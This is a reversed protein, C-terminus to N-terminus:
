FWFRTGAVFSAGGAGEGRARALRATRGTKREWSVGVYPAFERAIEYRLRLGLEADILGAGYGDRPVDQAALNLEVRPQAVLRQTLRQDYWGEIRALLDGRTSLFLAAETDLQYPALGEVAITAYARRPKLDYRVGLQLDHYPGIARGYLAQVEAADAGRGFRGEGESKVWLRNRDGGFWGEGDWRWGDRGDRVQVEALNFLLQGFAAGGGERMMAARGRAMAASGYARDAYHDAPPAPAAADGAPLDTGAPPAAANQDGAPRVQAQAERDMGPMDHMDHGAQAAAAAPLAAVCLLVRRM